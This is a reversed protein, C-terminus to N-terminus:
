LRFNGARTMGIARPRRLPARPVTDIMVQAASLQAFLGAAGPVEGRRLDLVPECRSLDQSDQQRAQRKSIRRVYFDGIVNGLHDFKIPGRPTDKLDVSRLTKVFAEKDDDQRRGELGTTVVAAAVYLGAAYFGPDVTYSKCPPL